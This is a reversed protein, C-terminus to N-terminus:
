RTPADREALVGRMKALARKQVQRVRENSLGVAKGVQALTRPKDRGDLGFREIVVQREVRDLHATNKTLVERVDSVALDRQREHRQADYDSPELEPDYSTGFRTVYRGVKTALRNFGKLIARCAYTSFKFGRAVDFNDIARLLAMYGESILDAFTVNPIRTRKAMAVVLGMNASVLESRVARARDHWALMARARFKSPRRQQREALRALRWRAYNYRLFLEAEDSKALAARKSRGGDADDPVEPFLTWQPTDIKRADSGFYRGKASADEFSDHWVPDIKEPIDDFCEHQHPTLVCTEGCVECEPVERRNDRAKRM